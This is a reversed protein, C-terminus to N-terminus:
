PDARSTLAGHPHRHGSSSRYVKRRTDNGSKQNAETAAVESLMAVQYEMEAFHRIKDTLSTPNTAIFGISPGPNQAEGLRVGQKWDFVGQRTPDRHVQMKKWPRPLVVADTSFPVEREEKPGQLLLMPRPCRCNRRRHRRGEHLFMRTTNSPHWEGNANGHCSTECSDM